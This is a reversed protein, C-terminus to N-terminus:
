LRTTGHDANHVRSWKETLATVSRGDALRGYRGKSWTLKDGFFSRLAKNPTEAQTRGLEESQSMLLYGRMKVTM